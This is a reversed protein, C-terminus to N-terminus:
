CVFSLLLSLTVIFGFVAFTVHRMVGVFAQFRGLAAMPGSYGDYRGIENRLVVWSVHSTLNCTARSEAADYDQCVRM